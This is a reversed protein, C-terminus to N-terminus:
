ALGKACVGQVTIDEDSFGEDIRHNKTRPPQTGVTKATGNNQLMHHAGTNNDVGWSPPLMRQLNRRPARRTLARTASATGTANQITGRPAGGAHRADEGGAGACLLPRHPVVVVPHAVLEMGPDIPRAPTRM